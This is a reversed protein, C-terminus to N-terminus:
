QGSIVRLAILDCFILNQANKEREFIWLFLKLHLSFFSFRKKKKGSM